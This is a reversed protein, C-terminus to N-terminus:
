GPVLIIINKQNYKKILYEIGHSFYPSSVYSIDGHEWDSIIESKLLNLFYENFDKVMHSNCYRFYSKYPNREGHM